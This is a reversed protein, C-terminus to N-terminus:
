KSAVMDKLKVDPHHYRKNETTDAGFQISEKPCWQLCSFCQECRHCWVPKGKVMKINNVPCIKHCICCGNCKEDSFFGHDMLQISEHFSLDTKGKFGAMKLWLIKGLSDRIRLFDVLQLIMESDTEFTGEKKSGIYDLILKIKKKYDSFIELQKDMSINKLIISFSFKKISFSPIIYNYPMRIGFGAALKANRSELLKKLYEISLGPSDGYTCVAFIYKNKTNNLKLVFRKVINPIGSHYVPYVIGIVDAETIITKRNIVSPISIIEAKIKKAIYRATFLSNGTGSFYYILVKM